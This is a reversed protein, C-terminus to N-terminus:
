FSATDGPALSGSTISPIALAITTGDYSKTNSVATVTVPRASIIFTSSTAGALVPTSGATLTYGVGVKNISLDSFSAVGNVAAVTVAGSLIGSAPNTGIAVTINRS